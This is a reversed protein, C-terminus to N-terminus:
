RSYFLSDVSRDLNREEHYGDFDLMLARNGFRMVDSPINDINFFDYVKKVAHIRLELPLSDDCCLENLMLYHRFRDDNYFKVGAVNITSMDVLSKLTELKKEYSMKSIRQKSEAIDQLAKMRATRAQYQEIENKTKQLGQGAEMFEKYADNAFSNSMQANASQLNAEANMAGLRLQGRGMEQDFKFKRESLDYMKKQIDIDVLNKEVRSSIEKLSADLNIKQQESLAGDKINKQATSILVDIQAKNMDDRYLLDKLSKQFEADTLNAEKEKKQTDAKLNLSQAAKLAMDSLQGLGQFAELGSGLGNVSAGSASGSPSQISSSEYPQSGAVMLPNIGADRYRQLQASPSNYENNMNWMDVDRQWANQALQENWQSQFEILEKDANKQKNISGFAM